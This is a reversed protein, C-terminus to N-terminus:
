LAQEVESRLRKYGAPGDSRFTVMGDRDVLIETGLTVLRYDRPTIGNTDQAWLVDGADTTKWFAVWQALPYRPDINVAVVTM